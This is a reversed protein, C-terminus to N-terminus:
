RYRSDYRDWDAMISLNVLNHEILEHLYASQSQCSEQFGLHAPQASGFASTFENAHEPGLYQDILDYIYKSQRRYEELAWQPSKTSDFLAVEDFRTIAANLLDRFKQSPPAMDSLRNEATLRLAHEAHATWAITIVITILGLVVLWVWYQRHTIMFAVVGAMTSIFGILVFWRQFAGSIWDLRSSM